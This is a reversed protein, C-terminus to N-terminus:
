PQRIESLTKRFVEIHPGGCAVAKEAAAVAEERRGLRALVNALNNYAIGNDPRIAVARGFAKASLEDRGLAYRSNGVGMWADYSGPWKATAVEYAALAERTRGARELGVAGKLWPTEEVFAPMRAPPLVLLGWYGSRAWTRDLLGLPYYRSRMTGTHLLVADEDRDYGVAVAYHWVPYWSLGLNQLLIVPNGAALEDLLFDRGRLVYAMRGHRRAAAVMASQLSGKESPTYVEAKLADPTVRVGSWGLAMALTAPGCQYEEQAYFPVDHVVVRPPGDQPLTLEGGPHLACGATTMVTLLLFLLGAAGKRVSRPRQTTM